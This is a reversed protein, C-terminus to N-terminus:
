LERDGLKELAKKTLRSWKEVARVNEEFVNDTITQRRWTLYNESVKKREGSNRQMSENEMGILFFDGNQYRYPYTSRDTGYSGMSCFPEVVIRLVHRDTIEMTRDYSCIEDGVRFMTDCQRWLQYGGQSRGVYIALIPQNLNYVYGDDRVILHEKYNPTVILAVDNIGDNDLDGIAEIHEWGAPVLEDVTAGEHKLGQAQMGVVCWCVMMM